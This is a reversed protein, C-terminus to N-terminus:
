GFGWVFHVREDSDYEQFRREEQSGGQTVGYALDWEM